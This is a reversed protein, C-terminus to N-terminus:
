VIASSPSSLVFHKTREMRRRCLVAGVTRSLYLPQSGAEVYSGSGYSEYYLASVSASEIYNDPLSDIFADRGENRGRDKYEYKYSVVSSQTVQYSSYIKLEEDYNAEIKRVIKYSEIKPDKLTGFRGSMEYTSKDKFTCDKGNQDHGERTSISESFYAVYITGNKDVGITARSLDSETFPLSLAFETIAMDDISSCYLSEEADENNGDNVVQEYSLYYKGFAAAKETLTTKNTYSYFGNQVKTEMTATGEAYEDGKISYSASASSETKQNILDTQLGAANIECGSLKDAYNDKVKEFAETIEEDTLLRALDIKDLKADVDKGCSVMALTLPFLLLLLKKKM